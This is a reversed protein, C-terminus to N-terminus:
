RVVSVGAICPIVSFWPIKNGVSHLHFAVTELAWHVWTFTHLFSLLNMVPDTFRFGDDRKPGSLPISRKGRKRQLGSMVQRCPDISVLNRKVSLSPNQPPPRLSRTRWTELKMPLTHRPVPPQTGQDKPCVPQHHLNANGRATLDRPLSRRGKRRLRHEQPLEYQQCM